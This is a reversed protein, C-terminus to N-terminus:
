GTGISLGVSRRTRRRRWEAAWVWYGLYGTTVFHLSFCAAETETVPLRPTREAGDRLANM